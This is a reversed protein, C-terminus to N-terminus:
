FRVCVEKPVDILAINKEPCAAVCAGCGLCLRWARVKDVRDFQMNSHTFLLFSHISIDYFAPEYLFVQM